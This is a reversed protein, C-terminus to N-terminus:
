TKRVAYICTPKRNMKECLYQSEYDCYRKRWQVTSRLEVSSCDGPDKGEPCMYVWMAKGTTPLMRDVLDWGRKGDMDPMVGHTEFPHLLKLQQNSIMNTYCAMADRGTVSWIKIADLISEVMIYERSPLCQDYNFIIEGQPSGKPYLKRGGSKPQATFISRISGGFMIPIVLVPGLWDSISMGINFKEIARNDIHREVELWDKIRSASPSLSDSLLKYDSPLEYEPLDIAPEHDPKSMRLKLKLEKIGGITASGFQGELYEVAQWFDWGRLARVFQLLSGKFDCAWCNFVGKHDGDEAMSCRKKSSDDPHNVTPCSFYLENNKGSKRREWDIGLQHLVVGVDSNAVLLDVDIM